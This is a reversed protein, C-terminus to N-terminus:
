PKRVTMADFDIVERGDKSIIARLVDEGIDAPWLRVAGDCTSAYFGGQFFGGLQPLPKDVDYPIDAPKTWPIDRKAEVFMLTNSTGDKIDRFAVGRNKPLVSGGEEKSESPARGGAVGMGGMGSSPGRDKKGDFVTEPGTLAYYASSTTAGQVTPHRFVAPMSELLKRNNPGDWPEDFDYADYLAQQDLYPLVAVRWSYPTKGDPGLLVPPPFCKHTDHYVHMALALQKLNNSSMSRKTAQRAAIIEGAFTVAWDRDAPIATEVRIQFSDKTIEVADLFEIAVDVLSTSYAASRSQSKLSTRGLARLGALMDKLNDAAEENKCSAFAQVGLEDDLRVGASASNVDEFFDLFSVWLARQPTMQSSRNPQLSGTMEAYAARGNLFVAVLSQNVTQWAEEQEFAPRPNPGAGILRHMMLTERDRGHSSMSRICVLTRDDAQYCLGAPPYRGGCVYYTKGQYTKKEGGRVAPQEMLEDFRYPKVFRVVNVEVRPRWDDSAAIEADGLCIAVTFQEVGENDIDFPPYFLPRGLPPMEKALDYLGVQKLQALIEAPRTVLVIEASNPVYALDLEGSAVDNTVTAPAEAAEEAIARDTTAPRLGAIALGLLLMVAISTARVGLSIPAIRFRSNRLMSIRRLFTSKAPLFARAPWGVNHDDQEIAMAAITTLYSRRGGSLGAAVSDAALEQELRLRGMLWHVLPHYFHLALGVQGLLGALFDNARVHALEHALVAHLQEESWDRWQRPLLILPRRWGVTAASVLADSERLEPRRRCGLEALLIDAMEALRPDEIIQSQRRYRVVVVLGAALRGLGLLMGASMLAVLAAPWRTDTTTAAPRPQSLEDELAQLFLMASSQNVPEVEGRGEAITTASPTSLTADTKTTEGQLSATAGSQDVPAERSDAAPTWRPWPSFMMLSLGVILMMSTLIVLAGARPGFRRLLVYAGAASLSLLTVQAICWLLTIGLQNM